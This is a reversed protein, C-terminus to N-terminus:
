AVTALCGASDRALAADFLMALAPALQSYFTFTIFSMRLNEPSLAWRQRIL